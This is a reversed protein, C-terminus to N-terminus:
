RALLQDIIKSLKLSNSAKVYVLDGKELLNPLKPLLAEVNEFHCVSQSNMGSKLASDALDRSSAGVALLVAPHISEAVFQGIEQHASVTADGLERMDGLIIVRRQGQFAKRVTELGAKMSHPNANYADDILCLDPLRHVHFRGKVGTFAKLGEFCDEAKLGLALGIAIVTAVNIGYVDHYYPLVLNKEIGRIKLHLHIQGKSDCHDSLVQVDASDSRGFSTNAKKVALMAKVIREDDRFSVTKPAAAIEMKAELIKEAGGFEGIHASGVNLLVGVDQQVIKSLFAIDGKHRAGMEIVAFRHTDNMKLLTLPVGLENNLSGVTKLTPALTALMESCLEKVSTNGSSGTIGIVQCNNHEARWWQALDQVAKFTDDVAVGSPLAAKSILHEKNRSYLFGEAGSNMAADIFTHGDFNEGVIPVFWQGRVIKRSDTEILSPFDSPFALNKADWGKDKMFASLTPM